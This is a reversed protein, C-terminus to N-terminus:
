CEGQVPHDYKCRRHVLKKITNAPLMKPDSHTAIMKGSVGMMNMKGIAKMADQKADFDLWVIVKLGRLKMILRNSISKNLLAITSMNTAEAVKIASLCDEVVIMISPNDKKPAMFYARKTKKLKKTLYKPRKKEAREGKTYRYPCRGCWGILKSAIDGTAGIIHDHIPIIIRNYAPSWHMAYTDIM